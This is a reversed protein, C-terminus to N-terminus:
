VDILNLTQEQLLTRPQPDLWFVPHLTLVELNPNKTNLKTTRMTRGVYSAIPMAPVRMAPWVAALTQIATM